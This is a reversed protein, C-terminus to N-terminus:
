YCALLLFFFTFIAGMFVEDIENGDLKARNMAEKVVLGGLQPASLSSLSGNFAGTPTRVAAVLYIENM